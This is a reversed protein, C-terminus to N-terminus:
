ANAAAHLPQNFRRGCESCYHLERSDENDMFRTKCCPSVFEARLLQLRERYTIENLPEAAVTVRLLQEPAFQAMVQGIISAHADIPYVFVIVTNIADM